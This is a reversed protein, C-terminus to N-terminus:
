GHVLEGTEKYVLEVPEIVQESLGFDNWDTRTLGNLAMNAPVNNIVV